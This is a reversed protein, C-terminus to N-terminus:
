VRRRMKGVLFFVLGVVFVVLLIGVAMGAKFIGEVLECGPLSIVALVVILLRLVINTTMSVEKLTAQLSSAL